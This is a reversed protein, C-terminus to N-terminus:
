LVEYATKLKQYFKSIKNQPIPGFNYVIFHPYHAYSHKEAVFFIGGHPYIQASRSIGLLSHNKLGAKKDIKLM